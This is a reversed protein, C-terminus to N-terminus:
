LLGLISLYGYDSGARIDLGARFYDVLVSHDAETPCASLFEPNILDLFNLRCKYQNFFKVTTPSPYGMDLVLLRHELAQDADM